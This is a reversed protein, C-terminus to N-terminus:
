GNKRQSLLDKIYSAGLEKMYSDSVDYALRDLFTEQRAMVSATCDDAASVREEPSLNQWGALEELLSIMRRRITRHETEERHEDSTAKAWDLDIEELKSEVSREKEMAIASADKEADKVTRRRRKALRPDEAELVAKYADEAAANARAQIATQWTLATERPALNHYMQASVCRAYLADEQEVASATCQKVLDENKVIKSPILVYRATAAKLVLHQGLLRDITKQRLTRPLKAKNIFPAIPRLKVDL